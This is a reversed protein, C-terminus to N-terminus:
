LETSLLSFHEIYFKCSVPNSSCVEPTPMMQEVLQVVVVVLARYNINYFKKKLFDPFDLNGSFDFYCFYSIQFSILLKQAYNQNFIAKIECLQAPQSM